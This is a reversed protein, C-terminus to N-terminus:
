MWASSRTQARKYGHRPLDCRTVLTVVVALLRIAVIKSMTLNVWAHDPRGALASTIHFGGVLQGRHLQAKYSDRRSETFWRKFCSSRTTAGDPRRSFAQQIYRRFVSRWRCAL